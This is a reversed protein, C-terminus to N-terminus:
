GFIESQIRVLRKSSDHGILVGAGQPLNSVTKLRIASGHRMTEKRGRQVLITSRCRPCDFGELMHGQTCHFALIHRDRHDIYHDGCKWRGVLPVLRRCGPCTTSPFLMPLVVERLLSGSFIMWCGGIVLGLAPAEIAISGGMMIALGTLRIGHATLSIRSRLTM